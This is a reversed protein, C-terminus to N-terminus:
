DDGLKPIGAAFWVGGTNRILLVPSPCESPVSNLTDDIRLGGDFRALVDREHGSVPGVIGLAMVMVAAKTVMEAGEGEHPFQRSRQPFRLRQWRQNGPSRM